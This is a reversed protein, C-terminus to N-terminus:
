LTAAPMILSGKKFQM